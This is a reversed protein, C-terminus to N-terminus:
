GAAIARAALKGHQAANVVEKGGNVCDGGAYVKAHGTRYTAEDVVVRGKADLEVGAFSRALETLRAQGIAVAVADCPIVERPGDTPKGDKTPAVELGTVKGSGDRAVRTPQRQEILRVGYHRAGDMEHDYGSMRAEDRRYVMAVDPVGLMALERAADIATNGGGVVVAREIGDLTLLPDGKIREIFATAGWVGPGDEGEIGLATDPGLGIGIFVADHDALLSEASVEGPKAEGAVVRVGARIRVDGLAQVFAIEAIAADAHMKYPAVGFTNLGGPLSKQEYIVVRFGELALTGAVALSAPGAGICAVSRGNAPKRTRALLAPDRALAHDVAYRQLRGIESRRGTPAPQLRLRRRM